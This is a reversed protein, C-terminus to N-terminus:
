SSISSDILVIDYEANVKQLLQKMMHSALLEAPNSPIAGSTLIDLSDLKQLTFQM